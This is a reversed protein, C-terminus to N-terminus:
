CPGKSLTVPDVVFSMGSPLEHGYLIMDSYMYMTCMGTFDICVCVCVSAEDGPEEGLTCGNLLQSSGPIYALCVCM